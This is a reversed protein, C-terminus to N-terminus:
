QHLIIRIRKAMGLPEVELDFVGASANRDLEVNQVVGLRVGHEVVAHLHRDIGILLRLLALNAPM